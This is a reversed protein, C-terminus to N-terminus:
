GSEQDEEAPARLLAQMGRERGVQILERLEDDSLGAVQKDLAMRASGVQNEILGMIRQALEERLADIDKPSNDSEPARTASGAVRMGQLAKLTQTLVSLTRACREADHRPRPRMGLAARIAEEAEVEKLVLAEIREAPSL